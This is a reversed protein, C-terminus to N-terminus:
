KRINKPYVKIGKKLWKGWEESFTHISDTTGGKSNYLKFNKNKWEFIGGYLNKVNKYGAKKLREAITESRIGLSCYVVIPQTKNPIKNTVSKLDFNDYGVCIADKIHSIAYEIPERTDLIMAKTKPMALTEVSIYAVSKTNNTELLEILTQQAHSFNSILIFFLIVGCATKIKCSTIKNKNILLCM